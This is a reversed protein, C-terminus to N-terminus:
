EAQTIKANEYLFDEVKSTLIYEKFDDMDTNATFDEEDEYGYEKVYNDIAEQLEDDSITIGEKDAIAEVVLSEKAAKKAYEIAQSNYEEKTLGMNQDLFTELDLNYAEAYDQVNILMRNVKEQIYEQPIDKIVTANETAMELLQSYVLQNEYTLNDEKMQDVLAARYDEVNDYQGESIKAIFDDTIEPITSRKVYNVTVAFVVDQGALSAEGYNEPFTLNLDTTKGIAAGILGDEFGDIFTHSGITLDYGEATGGDFAVGNLTGVYDINAIDGDEVVGTTVTEEEAFSSALYAMEDEIDDETVEGSSMEYSLGKYQGLEIYDEPKPNTNDAKGCGTLAVAAVAGAIMARVIKHKKRM